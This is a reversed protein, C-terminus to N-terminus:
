DRDWAELLLVLKTIPRCLTSTKTRVQVQTVAGKSYAVPQTVQGMLWSGRPEMEDVILVIDGKKFNRTKRTWKQRQQLEPLYEKIWRKWFVDAMYQVQRWRRKSYCDDASFVGPPLSPKTKLLLLHNPTLPELDMPDNSAKTIPKDNIISEVECLLTALGQDDLIQQHLLANLIRRVTRIHREWVGGHHSGTTWAKFRRESNGSQESSTPEM